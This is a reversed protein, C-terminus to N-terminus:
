IADRYTHTEQYAGRIQYQLWARARAYQSRSTSETIQLREAIEAHSFGELAYLNFVLRYGEPLKRIQEMLYAAGLQDLAEPPIESGAAERIEAQERFHKDRRICDIATNVVIRRIWGELSGRDQYDRLKQFVKIFGEQLMDEAQELDRAYRACVGLMKPAFREYLERQARPKQAICDQILAKYPQEM